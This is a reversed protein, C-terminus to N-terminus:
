PAQTASRIGTTADHANTRRQWVRGMFTWCQMGLNARYEVDDADALAQHLRKEFYARTPLRGPEEPTDEPALKGQPPPEGGPM